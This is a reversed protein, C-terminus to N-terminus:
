PWDKEFEHSESYREEAAGFDGFPDLSGRCM